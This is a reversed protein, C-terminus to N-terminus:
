WSWQIMGGIILTVTVAILLSLYAPYSLRLFECIFDDLLAAVILVLAAVIALSFGWGRLFLFVSASYSVFGALSVGILFGGCLIYVRQM